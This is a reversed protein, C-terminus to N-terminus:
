RRVKDSGHYLSQPLNEVPSDEMKERGQPIGTRSQSLGRGSRGQKRGGHENSTWKKKKGPLVFDGANVSTTLSVEGGDIGNGKLGNEWAGSEDSELVGFPSPSKELEKKVNVYSKISSYDQFAEDNGPNSNRANYDLLGLDESLNHTNEAPNLLPSVLNARRLRSKKHTRQGVWQAMPQSSSGLSHKKDSTIVVPSIKNVKSPLEDDEACGGSMSQSSPSPDAVTSSGSRPTRSLKGKILSGSSGVLDGEQINTRFIFCFYTKSDPKM